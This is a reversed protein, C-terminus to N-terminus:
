DGCAPQLVSAVVVRDRGEKKARSLAEAVAALLSAPTTGHRPFVAVGLSLSVPGLPRDEYCVKLQKVEKRLKEARNRTEKLSAGPLILLFEEGGYRCAIDEGRVRSRLLDALGRLVANGGEHTFDTNFQKFHDIDLMILGVPEQHRTARAIERELADEMAYPNHLGTRADRTALDKLEQREQLNRLALASQRGLELALQEQQPLLKGSSSEVYLLGLAQGDAMLPVCLSSGGPPLAAHQCVPAAQTNEVVKMLRLAQCQHLKFAAEAQLCQGWRAVAEVRFDRLESRMYLAGVATPLLQQAGQAIVKYADEVTLCTQLHAVIAFLKTQQLECLFDGPKKM